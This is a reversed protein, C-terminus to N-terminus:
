LPPEPAHPDRLQLLELGFKGPKFVLEVDVDAEKAVKAATATSVSWTEYERGDATLKVVYKEKGSSLVRRAVSAVRGILTETAGDAAAAKKAKPKTAASPPMAAEADDDENASPIGLAASLCYRRAYSLLSGLAQPSLNPAPLSFVNSLFQGSEHAILTELELLWTDHEALRLTPLQVITLSHKALPQRAVTWLSSLTSYSSGFHPNSGDRPAPQMEGQAASLAKSIQDIADSRTM